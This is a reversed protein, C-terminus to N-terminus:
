QGNEEAYEVRVQIRNDLQPLTSLWQPDQYIEPPRVLPWRAQLAAQAQEATKGAVTARVEALDIPVVYEANVTVTFEVNGGIFNAGPVRQVLLSDAVLKGQAPIDRQVADFLVVRTSAEDVAVGQVQSRLTLQLEDTEEDNFHSFAPLEVFTQVSEPPLWEGPQLEAQLAEYAKAEIRTQLEAFLNDRDAQTVVRAQQSGGGFTGDPNSVRVQFRLAGEVTGIQNATVNGEIGPEVAEIPVSARAGVSAELGSAQTTRFLIPNGTSTSVTSGLPINVATTGLNSFVVTGTAKDVPKQQFGTTIITGQEEVATEILRAPLLNIELDPETLSPNATLQVLATVPKRGPALTITAAPLVYLAFLALFLVILSGVAVISLTRMWFPLPLRDRQATTIRRQRTLHAAPQAMEGVITERRAWPADPLGAAPNRPHILPLPPRMRWARHEAEDGHLFVPIGLQQAAKRTPENRTIIGLHCRQIQAQRQVLRMRAMNDLEAWGEPLDLAVRDNRIGALQRRVAEITAAPDIQLIQTM